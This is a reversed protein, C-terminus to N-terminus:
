PTRLGDLVMSILAGVVADPAGLDEGSLAGFLLREAAGVVAAASVRADMPRLLGRTHAAHTLRIAGATMATALEAVPARAPTAPARGEQLYLRVVGTSEAVIAAFVVALAQYALTLEVVTTAQELAVRCTAFAEDVRAQVPTLLARVLDAKDAFYRYYSGKAIGAGAVLDDITVGDIGRALFLPLSADLLSEIRRKRNLDRAGGEQGPTPVPPPPLKRRKEQVPRSSKTM